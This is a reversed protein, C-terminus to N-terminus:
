HLCFFLFLVILVIATFWWLWHIGRPRAHGSSFEEKLFEDYDFSEDPLGLSSAYATESWGTKEDAGCDPCVKANRKVEAGCNPCVDPTMKDPPM